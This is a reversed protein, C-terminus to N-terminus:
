FHKKCIFPKEWVTDGIKLFKFFGRELHSSLVNELGGNSCFGLFQHKTPPTHDTAAPEFPKYLPHQNRVEEAKDLFTQLAFCRSM